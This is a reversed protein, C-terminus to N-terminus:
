STLVAALTEASLEGRFARHLLSQKLESLAALKRAFAQGLIETKGQLENLSEVTEIQKQMPPLHIQFPAIDKKSFGAQASRDAVSTLASQFKPSKLYHYFYDLNIIKTDPITKILAVNYAGEKGRHIQGVSAGYRALMIDSSECLRNKKAEPIYVARKDSTFDRIQLLRVYGAKPTSIFTSKPPQSGGQFKSIKGLTTKTWESEKREFVDNLHTDFLERANQLNKQTHATATALGAFAADLVSVIRRQESLPPLPIPLNQLRDSDIKLTGHAASSILSKVGHNRLALFLYRPLLEDSPILARVDQNFAMEKIVESMQLGNALGMGRVLMLVSGVPALKASSDGVAEATINLQTSEIREVKLDKATAWPINGGWFEPNSKRPTGGSRIECVEDVTTLRWGEPLSV